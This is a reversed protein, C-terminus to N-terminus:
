RYGGSASVKPLAMSHRWETSSPWDGSIVRAPNSEFLREAVSAGMKHAVLRRATDLRPPRHVEDHGDSAVFHVLGKSLMKWAAHQAPTGLGGELSRATVQFLVGREVWGILGSWNGALVPNREPHTVIPWLGAAMIQDLLALANPPVSHDTFEVLLFNLGNVAYKRPNKLADVLNDYNLQLECGAHVRPHGKSVANLDAIRENRRDPQYRYRSSAHPTAIIETTGTDAAIKLLALSEDRSRPGDDLGWLVHSHIDVM